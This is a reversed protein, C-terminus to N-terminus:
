PNGKANGYHPAPSGEANGHHPLEACGLRVTDVRM